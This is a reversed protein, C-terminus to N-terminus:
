NCSWEKHIPLSLAFSHPMCIIQEIKQTVKQPMEKFFPTQFKERKKTHLINPPM